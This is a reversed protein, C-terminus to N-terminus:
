RGKSAVLHRGSPGVVPGPVRAGPPVAVARAAQAVAPVMTHVRGATPATVDPTATPVRVAHPAISGPTKARTAVRRVAVVQVPVLPGAVGM